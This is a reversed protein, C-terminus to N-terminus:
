TCMVALWMLIAVILAFFYRVAYTIIAVGVLVYLVVLAYFLIKRLLNM